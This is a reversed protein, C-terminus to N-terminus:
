HGSGCGVDIVRQGPCVGAARVFEHSLRDSYRGMFRQYAAANAFMAPDSPPSTM